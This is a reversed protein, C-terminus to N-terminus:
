PVTRRTDVARVGDGDARLEVWEPLAEVAIPQIMLLADGTGVLRRGSEEDRLCPHWEGAEIARAVEWDTFYRGDSGEYVTEVPLAADAAADGGDDADGGPDDGDPTSM